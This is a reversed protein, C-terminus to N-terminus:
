TTWSIFTGRTAGSRGLDLRGVGSACERVGHVNSPPGDLFGGGGHHRGTHARQLRIVQAVKHM